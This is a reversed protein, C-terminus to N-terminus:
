RREELARILRAMHAVYTATSIGTAPNPDPFPSTDSEDGVYTTRFDGAAPTPSGPGRYRHSTNAIPAPWWGEANLSRLITAVDLRMASGFDSGAAVTGIFFRPLPM